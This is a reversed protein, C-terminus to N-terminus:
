RAGNTLGESRALEILKARFLLANEAAILREGGRRIFPLAGFDMARDITRRGFGIYKAADSPSLWPTAAHAIQTM